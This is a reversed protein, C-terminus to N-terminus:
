VSLKRAFITFGAPRGFRRPDCAFTGAAAYSVLELV